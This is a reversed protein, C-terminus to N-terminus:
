ETFKFSVPLILVQATPIGKKLRPTWRPSHKLLEVVAEDCGYGLGKVLTVSEVDGLASISIEVKVTGEIGNQRAQEPYVLYHKLFKQWDVFYANRNVRAETSAKTPAEVDTKRRFSFHRFSNDTKPTLMSVTQGLQQAALPSCTNLIGVILLTSISVLPKMM